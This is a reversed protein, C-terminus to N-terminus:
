NDYIFVLTSASHLLYQLYQLFARAIATLAAPATYWRHFVGWQEVPAMNQRESKEVHMCSCCGWSGMERVNTIIFMCKNKRIGDLSWIFRLENKIGM